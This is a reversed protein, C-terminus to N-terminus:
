QLTCLRDTRRFIVGGAAPSGAGCWQCRAHPAACQVCLENWGHLLRGIVKCWVCMGHGVCGQSRELQVVMIM